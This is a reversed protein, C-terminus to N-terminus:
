QAPAPASAPIAPAAAPAAAKAFRPKRATKKTEDPILKLLQRKGMKRLANIKALMAPRPVAHGNEWNTVTVLSTSLLKAVIRQSFAHKKRFAVLDSPRFHRRATKKAVPQGSPTEKAAPAAKAPASASAVAKSLEKLLKAQAALQEKMAKNQQALPAVAAKIEKRALRRIEGALIKQINSM